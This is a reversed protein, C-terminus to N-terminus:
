SLSTWRRRTQILYCNVALVIRGRRDAAAIKSWIPKPVIGFMAGADTRYAGDRLLHVTVDGVNYPM